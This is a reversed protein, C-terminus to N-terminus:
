QDLAKPPASDTVPPPPEPPINYGLRVLELRLGFNTTRLRESEEQLQGNRKREKDLLESLTTNETRLTRGARRYLNFAGYVALVGAPIYILDVPHDGLAAAVLSLVGASFAAVPGALDRVIQDASSM